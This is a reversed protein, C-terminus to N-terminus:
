QSDEGGPAERPPRAVTTWCTRFFATERVVAAAFEEAPAEFECHISHVGDFGRRALEAFVLSWDVMGEGARVWAVAVAGHHNSPQRSLLVDKLAVLALHPRLMALAYDFDEGNVVLHAPDVYAAICAPDRDRLLSELSGGINIGGPGSHTHYCITVGFERGLRQWGDLARGMERLATRYDDRRPDFVFYGLKLFRVGSEALAKLIPRATPDDPERLDGEGSAMPVELGQARLREVWPKFTSAVNDPTIPHGKRICLDFGDAGARKAIAAQEDFSLERFAKSFLILQM